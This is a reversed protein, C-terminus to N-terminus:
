QDIRALLVLSEGGREERCVPCTICWYYLEGVRKGRGLLEEKLQRAKVRAQPFSGHHIRSYWYAEKFCTVSLRSDDEPREIGVLLMGKFRAETFLVQLPEALHYGRADITQLMRLVKAGTNVPLGFFYRLPQCYFFREVWRHEQDDWRAEDIRPCICDAM